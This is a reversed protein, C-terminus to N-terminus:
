QLMTAYYRGGRQRVSAMSSGAMVETSSVAPGRASCMARSNQIKTATDTTTYRPTSPKRQCASRRRRASPSAGRSDAVANRTTPPATPTVAMTSTPRATASKKAPRAKTRAGIAQSLEPTGPYRALERQLRAIAEGDPLKAAQALAQGIDAERQQAKQAAARLDDIQKKLEELRPDGSLISEAQLVLAAAGESDGAAVRQDAQQVLERYKAANREAINEVPPPPPPPQVEAVVPPPPASRSLLVLAGVVALLYPRSVDLWRVSSSPPKLGCGGADVYKRVSSAPRVAM